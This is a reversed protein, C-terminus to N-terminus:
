STARRGSSKKTRSATKRKASTRKRTAAARKAAAKPTTSGGAKKRRTASAKAHRSLARPSAAEGSERQLAKKSARSRKPNPKKGARKDDQAAKTRVRKSATAAPKAGIGARRARSLGIAIAQKTNRAGHEGKRIRDIEDRVFEGAATSASKGERLDRKAREKPSPKPM